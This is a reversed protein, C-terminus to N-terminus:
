QYYNEINEFEVIENTDINRARWLRGQVYRKSFQSRLDHKISDLIGKPNKFKSWTYQHWEEDYIKSDGWWKPYSNFAEKNQWRWEKIWQKQEKKKESIGPTAVDRKQKRNNPKM